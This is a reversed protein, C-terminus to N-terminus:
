PHEATERRPRHQEEPDTPATGRHHALAVRLAQVNDAGIRAALKGELEPLIRGADTALAHGRNTLYVRQARRGMEGTRRDILGDRELTDLLKHVAQRCVDLERALDGVGIPGNSLGLFM